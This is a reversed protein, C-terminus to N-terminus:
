NVFFDKKRYLYIIVISGIVWSYLMAVILAGTIASQTMFASVEAGLVEKYYADYMSTNLLFFVLNLVQSIMSFIYWGIALKRAWMFKKIIGFVVACLIAIILLLVIVASVGGIMFPGLQFIPHALTSVLSLIGLGILILIIIMGIPMKQKKQEVM